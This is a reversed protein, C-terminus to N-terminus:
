YAGSRRLVSAPTHWLIRLDWWLSWSAVYSYDLRQLEDFPLDNRGSVQWLGTVGPRVDFRRAAWGDIKDSETVGFPRPGVLSMEGKLVNLLQPLEDLSTARLVAGSRTIRPDHHIKFIPGDVSNLGDLADRQAEAGDVMTRFKYIRFTRGSRGTRQQRFLVPGPSTLGVVAAVTLLVPALVILAVASVVVDLTRKAFRDAPGLSPPAVDIVPLGALEDVRSRVTLLDFMRPVVCIQVLDAMSRLHAAVQSETIPSFAVVLRDVNHEAVLRPIDDLGGLLSADPLTADPLRDSARVRGLDDQNARDSPVGRLNDDVCGIVDLDPAAAMRATIRAAILGSGVILVRSKRGRSGTLRRSLMRGLPITVLAILDTVVIAERSVLQIHTVRALVSTSLLILLAGVILGHVIHSLDPFTSAVLRRRGRRYLGYGGFVLVVIPVYAIDSLAGPWSGRTLLQGLVLANGIALSDGLLLPALAKTSHERRVPAREDGPDDRRAEAPAPRPPAPPPVPQRRELDVDLSEPTAESGPLLPDTPLLTM